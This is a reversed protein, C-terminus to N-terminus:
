RLRVRPDLAAYLLDTAFNVTVFFVAFLMVLGQILTFDNQGVAQILLKGIGNLNFVQETVVLGGLLFAFEMGVVTVAPLLANGLAHRAVIASERVGKSRATRIYDENLVELLSSRLMRAIMASMRAGVVLAPWILQELNGLPDEFLSIREIPPGWEFMLLLGLLVLMGLWFAPVALWAVTLVRIAQDIWSGHTLASTIGLPVAIVIAIITAMVAVQMTVALRSSIEEVVPRGTWMSRGLELRVLGGMWDAFQEHTPRDLGLRAREAAIVEASVNGGEALYKAEVVDGPLVRLLLFILAAVGALTVLLQLLKVGLYRPM